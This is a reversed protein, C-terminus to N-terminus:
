DATNRGQEDFLKKDITFAFREGRGPVGFRVDERRTGPALNQALRRYLRVETYFLAAVGSLWFLLPGM